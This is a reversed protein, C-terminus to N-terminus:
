GEQYIVEVQRTAKNAKWTSRYTQTAEVVNLIRPGLPANLFPFGCECGVLAGQAARWAGFALLQLCPICRCNTHDFISYKRTRFSQPVRNPHRKRHELPSIHLKQNLTWRTRPVECDSKFRKCQLENLLGASLSSRFKKTRSTCYDDSSRM